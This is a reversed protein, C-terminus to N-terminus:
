EMKWGFVGMFFETEIFISPATFCLLVHFTFFLKVSFILSTFLKVIFKQLVSIFESFCLTFGVKKDARAVVSSVNVIICLWQHDYKMQYDM